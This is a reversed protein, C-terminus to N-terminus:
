DDCRLMQMQGQRRGCPHLDAEGGGGHHHVAVAVALPEAIRAVAAVNQTVARM